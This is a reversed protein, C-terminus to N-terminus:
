AGHYDDTHDHGYEGPHIPCEKLSAKLIDIDEQHQAIWYLIATAFLAYAIPIVWMWNFGEWVQSIWNM